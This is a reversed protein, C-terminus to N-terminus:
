PILPVLASWREIEDDPTDTVEFVKVTPTMLNKVKRLARLNELGAEALNAVPVMTSVEDLSLPLVSYVRQAVRSPSLFLIDDDRQFKKLLVLSLSAVRTAAEIESMDGDVCARRILGDWVPAGERVVDKEYQEWGVMHTFLEVVARLEGAPTDRQSVEDTFEALPLNTMQELSAM